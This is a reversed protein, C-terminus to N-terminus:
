LWRGRRPRDFAMVLLAACAVALVLGLIASERYRWGLLVRGVFAGIISGGWGALITRLLGIPNPGPVVLRGLAGIVLGGIAISLILGLM